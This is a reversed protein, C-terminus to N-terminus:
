CMTSGDHELRKCWRVYRRRGSKTLGDDNSTLGGDSKLEEVHSRIEDKVRQVSINDMKRDSPPEYAQEIRLLVQQLIETDPQIFYM